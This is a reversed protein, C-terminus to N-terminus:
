VTGNGGVFDMKNLFRSEYLKLCEELKFEFYLSLCESVQDPISVIPFSNKSDVMCEYKNKM